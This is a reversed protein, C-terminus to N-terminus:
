QLGTVGGASRIKLLLKSYCGVFGAPPNVPPNKWANQLQVGMAKASSVTYSFPYKM